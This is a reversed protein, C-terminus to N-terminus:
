FVEIKILHLGTQLFHDVNALISTDEVLVLVIPSLTLLSVRPTIDNSSFSEQVVSAACVQLGMICYDSNVKAGKRDTM